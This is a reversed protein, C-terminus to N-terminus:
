TYIYLNSKSQNKFNFGFDLGILFKSKRIKKDM